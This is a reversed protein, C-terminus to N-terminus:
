HFSSTQMVFMFAAFNIEFMFWELFFFFIEVGYMTKWDM